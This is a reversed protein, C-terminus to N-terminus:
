ADVTAVTPTSRRPLLRRLDKSLTREGKGGDRDQVTWIAHLFFLDSVWSLIDVATIPAGLIQGVLDSGVNFMSGLTLGVAIGALPHAEIGPGIPSRDTSAAARFLNPGVFILILLTFFISFGALGTEGSRIHVAVGAVDTLVLALCLLRVFGLCTGDGTLYRYFRRGPRSARVFAAKLRDFM